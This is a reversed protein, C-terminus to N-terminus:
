PKTEALAVAPGDAHGLCMTRAPWFDRCRRLGKDLCSKSGDALREYECAIGLNIKAPDRSLTLLFSVVRLLHQLFEGGYQRKAM